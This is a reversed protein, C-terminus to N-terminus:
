KIKNKSELEFHDNCPHTSEWSDGVPSSLSHTEPVVL